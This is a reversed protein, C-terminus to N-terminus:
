EQERIESCWDGRPGVHSRCGYRNRDRFPFRGVVRSVSRTACTGGSFSWTIPQIGGRTSSALTPKQNGHIFNLACTARLCTQRIFCVRRYLGMTM